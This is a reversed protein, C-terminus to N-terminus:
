FSINLGLVFMRTPPYWDGTEPDYGKYPTWCFLNSATTYVRLSGLKMKEVMRSPFTYALSLSSLRLYSADQVAFDMQGASFANYANTEGDQPDNYIPRPFRANPNEPSWRDVLDVSAISKGTSSILSEYYPSLKKAGYSYNFVANLTIGKYTFDTSFGGYFKPDTSGIVVMDYQNVEGDGTVDEPYLDGPNVTRPFNIEKLRDMDYVQAIGGTRWCYINNRSEGIFLNGEKGVNRDDDINYIAKTDVFLQTVENRDASINASLNWQFDKNQILKANMSFEVGKNNIAGINDYATSFGSTLPLSRVMLLNKNKILFGDISATIRGNLFGMDLGVNIQRQSEWTIDETGRRGRPKYSAKGDELGVDYLTYFSYDDIAQNGVMGYGVRLKLQSFINQEKMFDEQTVNWAASFSPFAGWRNGKAFKSSGDFRATATLLYKDAYNYNARLVYSMLTSTTFDSGISREATKYNMGINYYNYRDAGYGKGTAYTYDRDIRSTSTSFLANIKHNGFAKDYSISNDWQWMMRYDRTHEAQGDQSYRISEQIDKPTYKFRDEQLYDFSFTTRINLGKIPNINLFNASSIRNRRRNNDIKLTRLPNFYNQDYKGGYNLTYIDESIPLMPNAGRAKDYVGDDSFIESETRVFSTNTGVKLWSKVLYDANIRGNYKRDSLKEVMGKKDAFGLSLYYSGKDSAGSFSLAHNQEFGTRTVEDLWNYNDNNVYADLEYQAFVYGGSGDNQQYPTMVRNNLFQNREADTANPYRADFSNMAADKRLEFLQKTDMTEPLKANTQFGVWGDYTVSGKGVKGKKTTILIVGNSARSGYLATASADKLVEISAVDNLNVSNFGGGWNDMVLGDVVYIPDTTSNITNVGRIRISADDGPKAANSVFVGAVRGQLAENINTVPKEELVKASVSTVAGTLDSKKLSTGVVIVEEIDQASSQLSVNLVAQNKVPIEKTAYGLYSFVLVADSPVSISYKGDIDTITGQSTGKVSVSAGILVEAEPYGTVTGKVIKNQAMMLTCCFMFLFSFYIRRNRKM